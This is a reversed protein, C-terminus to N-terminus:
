KTHYEYLIELFFRLVNLQALMDVKKIIIANENTNTIKGAVLSPDTPHRSFCLNPHIYIYGCCCVSLTKTELMTRRMLEQLELSGSIEQIFSSDQDVQLVDALGRISLSRPVSMSIPVYESIFLQVCDSLTFLKKTNMEEIRLVLATKIRELKQEMQSSQAKDYYIKHQSSKSTELNGLNDGDIFTTNRNNHNLCRKGKSLNTKSKGKPFGITFRKPSSFVFTPVMVESSNAEKEQTDQSFISANSDEMSDDVFTSVDVEKNEVLKEKESDM